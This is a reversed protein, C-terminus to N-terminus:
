LIDRVVTKTIGASVSYLRAQTCGCRHRGTTRRAAQNNLHEVLMGVRIGCGARMSGVPFLGFIMSSYTPRTLEAVVSM